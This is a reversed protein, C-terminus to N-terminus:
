QKAEGALKQKKAERRREAQMIQLYALYYKFINSVYQVTERGIVEAAAVEVNRFWVNPNLGMAEAKERLQAVRAPGANYSAFTFLAKNLDDMPADKYYHGYLYHLYKTGAHINRNLKKIDPINVPAGAATSPLLQMVGVAGAPSVKSQDLGSEQYALAAIMLWDFGYKDSYEKFLDVTQKFRTMGADGLARKVWHTNQLYRKFLINGLLTGKRSEAVFRNVAKLLQPSNKRMAWAIAGQTRLTVKDHVKLDQFIQKWFDALHNDAVTIPALGANVMELIDETELYESAPEIEAPPKGAAKLKKNLGALSQAYSSSPRVYVEKGSLDEVSHIAPAGPGTVVVETVNGYLPDSFDVAKKRRSTITLNACAL